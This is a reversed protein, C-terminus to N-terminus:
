CPKKNGPETLILSNRRLAYWTWIAGLLDITGFIIIVPSVYKLLAFATFALFVLIRTPITTKLFSVNNTIANRHYYFGINFALVGAVRIWVEQTQPLHFIQLLFNPMLILTLGVLYLYFAFYCVSRAAPIM